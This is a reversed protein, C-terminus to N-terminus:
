SQGPNFRDNIVERAAILEDTLEASTLGESFFSFSRLLRHQKSRNSEVEAAELINKLFSDIDVVAPVLEVRDSVRPDNLAVPEGIQRIARNGFNDALSAYTSTVISFFWLEGRGLSDHLADRLVEFTAMPSAEPSRALAGIEKVFKDPQEISQLAILEDDYISDKCLSYAPLDDLTGGAPINIKRLTARDLKESTNSDTSEVGLYYEVTEGRAHDIDDSLSGDVDIASNKVFGMNEYGDAHVRRARIALEPNTHETFHLFVLNDLRQLRKQTPMLPLQDIKEQNNM